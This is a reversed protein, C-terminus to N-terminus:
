LLHIKEFQKGPVFEITGEWPSIIKVIRIEITTNSKKESIEIKGPTNIENERFFDSYQIQLVNEDINNGPVTLISKGLECDILYRIKLSRVIGEINLKGDECKIKSSDLKEDNVYDGLAVPLLSTTLGYKDKLYTASGYFLKKNFRDNVFISDGSLFIRAIEIGANSKISILFKDPMLFKISGLGSKEGENSKIKFEAKEIYFSRATLNQNLVSQALDGIIPVGVISKKNRMQKRNVSCSTALIFVTLIFVIKRL